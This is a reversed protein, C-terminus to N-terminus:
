QGQAVQRRRTSVSAGHVMDTIGILFEDGGQRSVIDTQRMTGLLRQAMQSLFEDGASHGFSDNVSKFNDLDVFLLAVHRGNRQAHAIAQEIRSRGLM